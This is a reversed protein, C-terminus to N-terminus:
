KSVKLFKAWGGGDTVFPTVGLQKAFADAAVSTKLIMQFKPGFILWQGVNKGGAHAYYAMLMNHEKRKPTSAAPKAPAAHKPLAIAGLDHPHAWAGGSWARDWRLEWHCHPGTTYGTNGSLGIIQGATVWQGYQVDIRSLHGYRAILGDSRRIDVTLGEGNAWVGNIQGRAGDGGAFVVQGDFSAALPTGVGVAFDTGYHWWSGGDRPGPWESVLAPDLPYYLQAM